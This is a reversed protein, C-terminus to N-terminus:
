SPVSTVDLAQGTAADVASIRLDGDALTLTVAIQPVGAPGSAFGSIRFTGLLENDAAMVRMGRCVQVELLDQDPTGTSFVQTAESPLPMGVAIVPMVMGHMPFGINQVVMGDGWAPTGAEVVVSM